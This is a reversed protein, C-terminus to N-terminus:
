ATESASPSQALREVALRPVLVRSGIQVTHLHGAKTMRWLTTRSIRLTQAAEALTLLITEAQKENNTMSWTRGAGRATGGPKGISGACDVALRHVAAWCSRSLCVKPSVTPPIFGTV